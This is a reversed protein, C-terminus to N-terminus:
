NSFIEDAPRINKVRKSWLNRPIQSMSAVIDRIVPKDYITGIQHNTHPGTLRTTDLRGKSGLSRLEFRARDESNLRTAVTSLNDIYLQRARGIWELTELTELSPHFYHVIFALLLLSSFLLTQRMWWSKRNLQLNFSM